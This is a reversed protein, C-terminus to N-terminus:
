VQSSDVKLGEQKEKWVGLDKKEEGKRGGWGQDLDGARRRSSNFFFFTNFYTSKCRQTFKKQVALHSLYVCM